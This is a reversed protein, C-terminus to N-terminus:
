SCAFSQSGGSTRRQCWDLPWFWDVLQGVSPCASVNYYKWRWTRLTDKLHIEGSEFGSGVATCAAYKVVDIQGQKRRACASDTYTVGIASTANAIIKSYTGDFLDRCVDLVSYSDATFVSGCDSTTYTRTYWFDVNPSIAFSFLFIQIFTKWFCQMSMKCNFNRCRTSVDM